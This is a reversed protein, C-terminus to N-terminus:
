VTIESVKWKGGEKTMKWEKTPATEQDVDVAGKEIVRVKVTANNGSVQIDTAADFIVLNAIKRLGKTVSSSPKYGKALYPKMQSDVEKVCYKEFFRNMTLRELSKEDLGQLRGIDGPTWGSGIQPHGYGKLGPESKPPPIYVVSVDEKYGDYCWGTSWHKFKVYM